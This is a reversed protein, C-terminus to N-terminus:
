RFIGPTTWRANRLRGPRQHVAPPPARHAQRRLRRARATYVEARHYIFNGLQVVAAAKARSGTGPPTPSPGRGLVLKISDACHIITRKNSNTNSNFKRPSGAWSAPLHLDYGGGAGPPSQEPSTGPAAAPAPPSRNIIEVSTPIVEIMVVHKM